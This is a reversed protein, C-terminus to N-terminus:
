EAWNKFKRELADKEMDSMDEDTEQEKMKKSMEDIFNHLTGNRDKNRKEWNKWQDSDKSGYKEKWDNRHKELDKMHMNKLDDVTINSYKAAKKRM